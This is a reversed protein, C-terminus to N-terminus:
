PMVSTIIVMTVASISISMLLLRVRLRPMTPARDM